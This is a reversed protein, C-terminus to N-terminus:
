GLKKSCVCQEKGVLDLLCIHKVPSLLACKGDRVFSKVVNVLLLYLPANLNFGNARQDFSDRLFVHPFEGHM